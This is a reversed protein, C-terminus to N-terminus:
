SYSRSDTKLHRRYQLIVALYFVGEYGEISEYVTRGEFYMELVRRSIDNLPFLDLERKSLLRCRDIISARVSLECWLVDQMDIDRNDFFHVVKYIADANNGFGLTYFDKATLDRLVGPRPISYEKIKNLNLEKGYTQCLRKIAAKAQPLPYRYSAVSCLLCEWQDQKFVRIGKSNDVIKLCLDKRFVGESQVLQERMLEWQGDAIGLYERIWYRDQQIQSDSADMGISMYVELRGDFYRLLVICERYVFYVLDSKLIQYKFIQESEFSIRIGNWEEPSIIFSLYKYDQEM